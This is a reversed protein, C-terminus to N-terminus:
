VETNLTNTIAANIKEDVAEDFAESEIVDSVTANTGNNITATTTGNVDTITIVAGSSTQEVKATPSVGSTGGGASELLAEIEDMRTLMHTIISYNAELVTEECELGEVVYMDTNLESNWHLEERGEDDIAKACVLFIIQGNYKTAASEITWTFHIINTDNPDITVDTVGYPFPDGKPPKINIYIKMTSLDVNGFYRICDFTVTKVNHDHQVAIKKLAEPVVVIRDYGIIIHEDAEPAASYLAVDNETLGDLLEDAQSM